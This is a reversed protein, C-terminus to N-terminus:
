FLACNSFPARHCTSIPLFFLIPSWRTGACILQFIVNLRLFVFRNIRNQMFAILFLFKFSHKARAAKECANFHCLSSSEIM